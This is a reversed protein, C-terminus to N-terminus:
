QNINIDLIYNLGKLVFNQDVFISNKLRKSLFIADGGTLLVVLDQYINSFENIVGEIEKVVGLCIGSHISSNTSDGIISIPFEKNLLPLKATFSNLSQYRMQIGPSISGGLYENNSNLFDYTICSGADIIFVNKGKYNKSGAAALAIRDVGLTQPTSYKNNFPLNLKYNLEIFNLNPYNKKLFIFDEDSVSSSICNCINYLQFLNELNVFLEKDSSKVLYVLQNKNFVALKTLTNGSDIVLNCKLM